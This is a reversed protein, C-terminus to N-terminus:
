ISIKKFKKLLEIVEEDSVQPFAEYFEGVGFYLRPIKIVCLEDVEERIELLSLEAGHPIAVIIKKPNRKRVSAIAARMTYGTAVGDDVLIVIKEEVEAPAGIRYSRLRRVAEAKEKFMENELWDPDINEVEYENLIAEGTETIAGIAYEPNRPAGIKRAVVIDLPANLMEAVEYAVVVGGRPLGLVIVQPNNRYVALKEGLMRGAEERNKFRM